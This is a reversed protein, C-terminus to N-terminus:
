FTRSWISKASSGGGSVLLKHCPFMALVDVYSATDLFRAFSMNRQVMNEILWLKFNHSKDFQSGTSTCYLQSVHFNVMSFGDNNPVECAYQSYTRWFNDAICLVVLQSRIFGSSLRLFHFQTPWVMLRRAPSIARVPIWRPTICRRHHHNSINKSMSSMLPLLSPFISNLSEM